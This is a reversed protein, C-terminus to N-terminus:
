VTGGSVGTIRSLNKEPQGRYKVIFGSFGGLIQNFAMSEHWCGFVDQLELIEDGHELRDAM